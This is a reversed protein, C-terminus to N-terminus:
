GEQTPSNAAAKQLCRWRVTVSDIVTEKELWLGRDLVSHRVRGQLHEATHDKLLLVIRTPSLLLARLVCGSQSLDAYVKIGQAFASGLSKKVVGLETTM